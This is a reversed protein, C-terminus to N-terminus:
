GLVAVERVKVNGLFEIYDSVDISAGTWLDALEFLAGRFSKLTVIGNVSDADWDAQALEIGSGGALGALLDPEPAVGVTENSSGGTLGVSMLDPEPEAQEYDCTAQNVVEHLHVYEDFELQGNRNADFRPM